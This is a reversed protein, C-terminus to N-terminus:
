RDPAVLSGVADMFESMGKINIQLHRIKQDLM